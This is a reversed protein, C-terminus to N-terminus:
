PQPILMARKEKAECKAIRFVNITSQHLVKDILPYLDVTLDKISVCTAATYSIAFLSELM